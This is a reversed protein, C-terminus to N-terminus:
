SRDVFTGLAQPTFEQFFRHTGLENPSFTYTEPGNLAVGTSSIQITKDFQDILNEVNDQCRVSCSWSHGLSVVYQEPQIVMTLSAANPLVKIYKLGVRGSDEAKIAIIEAKTFRGAQTEVFRHRGQDTPSFTYAGGGTSQGGTTTHTIDVTGTYNTIDPEVVLKLSNIPAPIIVIVASTALARAADQFTLTAVPVTYLAFDTLAAYGGSLTISKPLSAPGPDTGSLAITSYDTPNLNGFLDLARLNGAFTQGAITTVPLTVQFHATRGAQSVIPASPYPTANWIGIIAFSGSATNRALLVATGRDIM